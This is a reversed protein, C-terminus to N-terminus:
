LTGRRDPASCLARRSVAHNQCKGTVHCTSGTTSAYRCLSNSTPATICRRRGMPPRRIDTMSM